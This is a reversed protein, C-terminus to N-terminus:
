EPHVLMATGALFRLVFLGPQTLLGPSASGPAASSRV